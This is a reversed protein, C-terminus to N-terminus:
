SKAALQLENNVQNVNMVGRARLGATTKDGENNVVGALTVTRNNVLIHIAYNGVPDYGYFPAGMLHQGGFARGGFGAVRGGGL